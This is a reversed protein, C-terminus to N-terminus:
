MKLHGGLAFGYVVTSVFGMLNLLSSAGHLKSFRKNLQKMEESKEGEDYYKKGEKTEQRKREKMVGTTAPGVVGLNVASTLFTALM